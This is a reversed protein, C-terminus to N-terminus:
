RIINGYFANGYNTNFKGNINFRLGPRTKLCRLLGTLIICRTSIAYLLALERLKKNDREDLETTRKLMSALPVWTQEFLSGGGANTRM